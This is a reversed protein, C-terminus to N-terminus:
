FGGRAPEARADVFPRRRLATSSFAPESASASRGRRTLDRLDRRPCRLQANRRPAHECSYACIASASTVCMTLQSGLPRSVTRGSSSNLRSSRAAIASILVAPVLPPPSIAAHLDVAFLGREVRQGPMETQKRQRRTTMLVLRLGVGFLVRKLLKFATQSAKCGLQSLVCSSRCIVSLSRSARFLSQFAQARASCRDGGPSQRTQSKSAPRPKPLVRAPASNTRACISDPTARWTASTAGM